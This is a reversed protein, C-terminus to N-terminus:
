LSPEPASPLPMTPYPAPNFATAAYAPGPYDPLIFPKKPPLSTLLAVAIAASTVIPVANGLALGKKHEVKGHSGHTPFIESFNNNLELEEDTM